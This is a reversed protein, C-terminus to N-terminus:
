YSDIGTMPMYEKRVIYHMISLTRQRWCLVRLLEPANRSLQQLMIKFACATGETDRRSSSHSNERLILETFIIQRPASLSATIM